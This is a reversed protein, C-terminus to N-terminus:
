RPCAAPDPPSSRFEDKWRLLMEYALETALGHLLLRGGTGWLSLPMWPTHNRLFLLGATDGKLGALHLAVLEDLQLSHSARFTEARPLFIVYLPVLLEVASQLDLFQWWRRPGLSELALDLEGIAAFDPRACPKLGGVHRGLGQLVRYLNLDHAMFADPWLDAMRRPYQPQNPLRPQGSNAVLFDLIRSGLNFHRLILWRTQPLGFLQLSGIVSAHLGRYSKVRAPLVLRLLSGLAILVLALARVLPFALRRCWSAHSTRIASRVAPPLPLTELGELVQWPDPDYRAADDARPAAQEISASADISSHM